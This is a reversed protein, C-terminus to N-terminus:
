EATTLIRLYERVFMASGILGFVLGVLMTVNAVQHSLAMLSWPTGSVEAIAAPLLVAIMSVMQLATKAKSFTNAGVILRRSAAFNRFGDHLLDRAFVALLLWEPYVGLITFHAFYLLVILKDALPDMFAGLESTQGLKRAAAGDLWDTLAALVFIGAAITTHFPFVVLLCVAGMGALVFRASTLINPLSM